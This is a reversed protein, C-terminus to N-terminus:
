FHNLKGIYFQILWLGKGIKFEDCM